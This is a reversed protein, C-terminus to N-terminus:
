PRRWGAGAPLMLRGAFREHAALAVLCLGGALLLLLPSEGSLTVDLVATEGANPEVPDVFADDGLIRGFFNLGDISPSLPVVRMTTSSREIRSLTQGLATLDTPATELDSVLLISAPAVDDRILM